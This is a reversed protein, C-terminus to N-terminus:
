VPPGGSSAHLAIVVSQLEDQAIGYDLDALQAKLKLEAADRGLKRQQEAQELKQAQFDIAGHAADAASVRSAASRVRDLLPFTIQVGISATNYDGRINYFDSVNEIPSIRGYQAGFSVSPRWAYQGDARAHLERSQENIEAALMGPGEHFEGSQEPIEPLDPVTDPLAVLNSAPIGTLESLYSRQTNLFDEIHMVALRAQLADRRAKKLDLESDMHAAVRDEIISVLKVRYGFQESIAQVAEQDHIITLYTDAADQAAQERADALALKAAKLDLRASRVYSVQQPSYVLSQASVTFITPVTLTIGTAQGLGGSIVVSPVYIDKMVGLAAQAKRVDQQATRVKPSNAIARDVATNFAVQAGAHAASAGAVLASAALCCSFNVLRNM